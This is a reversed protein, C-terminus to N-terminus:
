ERYVKIKIVSIFGIMLVILCNWDKNGLFLDFFIIEFSMFGSLSMNFYFGFGIFIKMGRLFKMCINDLYVKM